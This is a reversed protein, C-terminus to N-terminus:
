KGGFIKKVSDVTSEVATGAAGGVTGVGKLSMKALGTTITRLIIATIEPASVGGGKGNGLNTLTVDDMPLTVATPGIGLRVKAHTIKFSQIVFTTTKGNKAPQPAANKGDSAGKVNKLIDGINSSVLHTEYNFTVDDFVLENVVIDDSMLSRPQVKVRVFGVNLAKDSNWGRPNMVVLGTFLGNGSFPSLAAADLHTDTQLMPPVYKNFASKTLQGVFVDLVLYLVVLVAAVAVLTRILVKKM